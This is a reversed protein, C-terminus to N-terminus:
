PTASAAPPPLPRAAAPEAPPTAPTEASRPTEESPQTLTRLFNAPGLVLGWSPKELTGTLKVEFVNSLPSLAVDLLKKLIFGSEQFPFLKANFDLQKRDLAYEGHAQIASNDGTISVDPFVLKSGEIRFSANAGTFRLATFRLTESLGGLMRLEGLEAGKLDAVGRGHYSYFDTPNGEGTAAMDLRVNNREQMFKGPPPAPVGDRFATFQELASVARGLRADRLSFDFALRRAAGEGRIKVNGKAIGGAFGTTVDDVTIEGDRIVTTAEVRELPFGYYRFASDGKGEIRVDQHLVGAADTHLRGHVKLEPPREFQFPTFWDASFPGILPPAVALDLSSVGDFDFRKWAFTRPDLEYTFTGRATGAGLTGFTELGDYFGPRIFLLTRARDLRAGRIVPSNVDAFLFVSTRRGEGWRGTVDVGAEPGGGPFEFLKFFNPWWPGFWGSIALPELNGALLFRFDQSGFRHEYSGRAFNKAGLRAYAESALFRQPTLEVRGHVEDIFVRYATVERAQIQAAVREFKWDPGFTATARSATIPISFDVWKRVDRGVRKSIVDLWAAAVQGDLHVAATKASFDISAEVNLPLGMAKGIVAAHLQPLPGPTFHGAFATLSFGEADVADATLEIETPELHLLGPKLAGRLQLHTGRAVAGRPLRLERAAAELRVMVPTEGTLPFRANARFDAAQVALPAELKLGRAVLAITAIAGRSESPALELEVSPEDLAALKEAAVILQRCLAAYRNAIFEATPLPKAARPQTPLYVAGRANVALNALRGSLTEIIVENEGGPRITADFDRVIQETRGTSSIMAPVLWSAGNVRLGLLEVKGRMLSWPDFRVFVGGATVVPENFSPLVLSANEVFVSGAPDFSTRGFKANIGYTALRKEAASMMWGPVALESTSIIYIQLGLLVTLALWLTWVVLSVVASGVFRLMHRLIQAGRNM